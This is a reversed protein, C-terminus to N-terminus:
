GTLTQLHDKLQLITKELDFKIQLRQNQYVLIFEVAEVNTTPETDKNEIVEEKKEEQQETCVNKITDVIETM